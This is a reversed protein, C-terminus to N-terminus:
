ESWSDLIASPQGDTTFAGMDYAGWGYTTYSAPKWYNYVEPEWYFVGACVSTGLAKAKSMFDAAVKAGTTIDSQKVGFEAVLVPVGFTSALSTIRSIATSNLSSWSYSSDDSQPYHSLAIMDMKGGAAKFQNFWWANDEYAHNLHPMVLADPYIAKTADYGANYLEAFNTRGDSTDGNSDWWQGDPHMMGNRTENGIQVWAVSVGQHKIASLVSSVHSSVASVLEDHTLTSWESPMDQRSPDAWWDSLHFDIMVNLGAAYAEAAKKVVDAQDSYNCGKASPKVWVRLRVANMGIEKMLAPCTREEASSNYFKMGDAAMESYWSIDAGRVFATTAEHPAPTAAITISDIDATAYTQGSVTLTTGDTYTMTGATAAPVATTEEGQHILLTQAAVTLTTTCLMLSLVLKKM